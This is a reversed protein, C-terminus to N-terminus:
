LCLHVVKCTIKEIDYLTIEKGISSMGIAPKRFEDSSLPGTASIFIVGRTSTMSTSRTIKITVAGRKSLPIGM